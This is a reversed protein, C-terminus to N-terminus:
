LGNSGAKAATAAIGTVACVFIGVKSKPVDDEDDDVDVVTVVAITVASAATAAKLIGVGSSLTVKAVADSVVEAAKGDKLSLKENPSLLL